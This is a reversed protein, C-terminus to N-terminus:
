AYTCEILEANTTVSGTEMAEEGGAETAMTDARTAIADQVKTVYVAPLRLLRSIAKEMFTVVTTPLSSTAITALWLDVEDPADSFYGTRQFLQSLIPSTIMQKISTDNSPNCM